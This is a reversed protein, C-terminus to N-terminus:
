GTGTQSVYRDGQWKLEASPVALKMAHFGPRINLGQVVSQACACEERAWIRDAWGAEEAAAAWDEEQEPVRAQRDQEM